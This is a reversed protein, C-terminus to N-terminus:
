VVIHVAQHSASVVAAFCGLRSVSLVATLVTADAIFGRYLWGCINDSAEERMGVFVFPCMVFLWRMERPM